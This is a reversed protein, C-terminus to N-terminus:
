TITTTSGSLSTVRGLRLRASSRGPKVLSPLWRTPWAEPLICQLHLVPRNSMTYGKSVAEVPWNALRQASIALGPSLVSYSVLPRDLMRVAATCTHYISARVPPLVRRGRTSPAPSFADLVLPARRQLKDVTKPVFTPDPYIKNIVEIPYIRVQEDNASFKLDKVTLAVIESGRAATTLLLLVALKLSVWKIEM